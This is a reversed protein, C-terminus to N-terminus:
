FLFLYYIFSKFYRVPINYADIYQCVHKIRLRKLAMMVLKEKEFAERSGFDDKRFTKM